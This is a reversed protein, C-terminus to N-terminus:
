KDDQRLGSEIIAVLDRHGSHQQEAKLCDFLKQYAGRGKTNLLFMYFYNKKGRSSKIGEIYEMDKHSLLEKAYLHTYLSELDTSRVFEEMSRRIINAIRNNQEIGDTFFVPSNPPTYSMTDRDLSTSPLLKKSSLVPSNPASSPSSYSRRRSEGANPTLFFNLQLYKIKKNMKATANVIVTEKLAPYNIEVRVKVEQPSSSSSQASEVSIQRSIPSTPATTFEESTASGISSVESCTSGTSHKRPISLYDRHYSVRTVQDTAGEEGDITITVPSLLNEDETIAQLPTAIAANDMSLDLPSLSSTSLSLGSDTSVNSMQRRMTVSETSNQHHLSKGTPPQCLMNVVENELKKAVLDKKASQVDQSMM